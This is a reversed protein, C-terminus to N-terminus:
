TKLLRRRPRSSVQVPTAAPPRCNRGPSCANTESGCGQPLFRRISMLPCSDQPMKLVGAVRGRDSGFASARAAFSARFGVDSPTTGSRCRKGEAKPSRIGKPIREESKPNQFEREYRIKTPFLPSECGLFPTEKVRMLHLEILKWRALSATFWSFGLPKHCVFQTTCDNSRAANAEIVKM